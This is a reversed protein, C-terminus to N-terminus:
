RDGIEGHYQQLSKIEEPDDAREEAVGTAAALAARMTTFYCVRNRIAEKRIYSDDENANTTASPTNIVITITGDSMLDIIDSGGEHLKPLARASVGKGELFAATGKTSLIAFGERQFKLAVEAAEEKDKDNVSIFVAGEAPLPLKTAEQAKAFAKGYTSSIGLVEGTSLMEPGLLPDVEPFMNFPFVAEKVGFHPIQREKLTSMDFSEGSHGSMIIRTAIPVMRVDCVKSVLPVTRSARPNAELIYVTDGEIAYQINMLGKVRMEIAIRRTYEKITTLHKDEIGVSPIV